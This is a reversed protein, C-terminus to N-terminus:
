PEYARLRPWWGPVAARYREYEAGFRRSLTPEEYWHVFAVVPVMMVAGYLLLVPRSLLLAQGTIAALVAVYMPNRVYRYMGGIVLHETPAIPAPTGLGEVVFRVFARVLAVVGAVVLTGGVLRSSVTAWSPVSALPDGTEWRTIWWPLLGAVVGPALVFFVTTGVAAPTKRM